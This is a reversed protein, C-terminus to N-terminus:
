ELKDTDMGYKAFIGMEQTMWLHAYRANMGSHSIVVRKQASAVPSEASHYVVM